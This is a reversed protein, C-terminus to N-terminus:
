AHYKNGGNVAICRQMITPLKDIETNIEDITIKDWAEQLVKKMQNVTTIQESGRLTQIRRKMLTWIREIPNFDPSNPPWDMQRVGERVREQTTYGSGHAAAGDEMLIVNPNEATLRKCEPWLVPRCVNQVYRWSDVGKGKGRKVKAIKYKKNRFTQTTKPPKEGKAKAAAQIEAAMKLDRERLEQWEKTAKWQANLRQEEETYETNLKPIEIAAAECEGKTEPDWIYFPGKYNWM